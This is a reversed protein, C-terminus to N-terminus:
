KEIYAENNAIDCFLKYGKEKLFNTGIITPIRDVEEM